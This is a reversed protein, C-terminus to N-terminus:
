SQWSAPCQELARHLTARQVDDRIAHPRDFRRVCSETNFDTVARIDDDVHSDHSAHALRGQRADLLFPGEDLTQMRDTVQIRITSEDHMERFFEADLAEAGAIAAIGQEALFTMCEPNGAPLGALLAPQGLVHQDNTDLVGVAHHM